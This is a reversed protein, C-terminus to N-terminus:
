KGVGSSKRNQRRQSMDSQFVDQMEETRPQTKRPPRSSKKNSKRVIKGGDTAKKAAKVSKARQYALDVLPTGTKEKKRSGMKDVYATKGVVFFFGNDTKGVGGGEDKEWGCCGERMGAKGQGGGWKGGYGDDMSRCTM